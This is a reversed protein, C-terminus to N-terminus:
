TTRPRPEASGGTVGLLRQVLAPALIEQADIRGPFRSAIPFRLGSAGTM